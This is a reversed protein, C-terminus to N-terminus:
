KTNRDVIEHKFNNMDDASFRINLIDFQYTINKTGIACGSESSSSSSSSTTRSPVFLKLKRFFPLLCWSSSSFASFSANLRVFSRVFPGVVAPRGCSQNKFHNLEINICMKRLLVFIPGKKGFRFSLPRWGKKGGKKACRRGNKYFEEIFRKKDFTEKKLLPDINAWQTAVM